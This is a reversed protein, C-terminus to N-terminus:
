KAERKKVQDSLGALIVAWHDSDQVHPYDKRMDTILTQMVMNAEQWPTGLKKICTAIQNAIHIPCGSGERSPLLSAADMEAKAQDSKLKRTKAQAAAIERMDKLIREAHHAADIHLSKDFGAYKLCRRYAEEGIAKKAKAFLKLHEAQEPYLYRGLRPDAAPRPGVTHSSDSGTAAPSTSPPLPDEVIDPMPGDGVPPTHALVQDVTRTDPLEADRFQALKGNKVREQEERSGSGGWGNRVTELESEDMMGLGCHTLIARRKAKTAAKMMANCLDDGTKGKISVAGLDDTERGDGGKCRAQVVYLEGQIGQSVITASLGRKSSLQSACEKKAYLTLKGQLNILDFPQTAPDLDLLQCRYIYYARQQDPTLGKLDGSTVLKNLTDSDLPATIVQVNRKQIATSM